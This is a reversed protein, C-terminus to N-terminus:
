RLMMPDVWARYDEIKGGDELYKAKREDAELKLKKYFLTKIREVDNRIEAPPRNEIILGLTEVLEHKTYGSYDVPPLEIDDLDQETLSDAAAAVESDGHTEQSDVIEEKIVETDTKIVEIEKDTGEKM